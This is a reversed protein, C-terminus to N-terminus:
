YGCITYVGSLTWNVKRFGKKNEIQLFKSKKKTLFFINKHLFFSINSGKLLINNGYKPFLPFQFITDM